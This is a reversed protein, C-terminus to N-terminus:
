NYALYEILRKNAVSYDVYWPLKGDDTLNWRLSLKMGTRLHSGVKINNKKAIAKM